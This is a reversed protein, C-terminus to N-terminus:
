KLDFRGFIYGAALLKLLVSALFTGLNLYFLSLLFLLTESLVSIPVMNGINGRLVGCVYLTSSGLLFTGIKSKAIVAFFVAHSILMLSVLIQRFFAKAILFVTEVGFEMGFGSHISWLVTGTLFNVLLLPVLGAFLAIIKAWFAKGRPMGCLLSGYFTHATFDGNVYFSTYLFIATMYSLLTQHQNQLWEIGTYAPNYKPYTISNNINNIQVMVEILLYIALLAKYATLKKLKYFEAKILNKM